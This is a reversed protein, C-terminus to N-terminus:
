ENDFASAFEAASPWALEPVPALESRQLSQLMLIEYHYSCLYNLEGPISGIHQRAWHARNMQAKHAALGYGQDPSEHCTKCTVDPVNVGFECMWETECPPILEWKGKLTLM